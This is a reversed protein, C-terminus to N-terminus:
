CPVAGATAPHRLRVSVEGSRVRQVGAEADASGAAQAGATRICLAGSSDVGAAVGELAVTGSQLTHVPQGRLLDRQQYAAVLPAFGQHQFQLLARLLAPACAELARATTWAPDLHQLCAAAAGAGAAGQVSDPSINLGVGVVCVRQNGAMVTEILIGGLKRGQGPGGWLWLDNPWKLGIARAAGDAGGAGATARPPDLADALALGVALSLGDWSGPALPLALSCTLSAGPAAHWSRGMRGRGSTQEVAVLLRPTCPQGAATSRAADLLATNTSAVSDQVQLQLGPLLAQLASQLRPQLARLERATPSADRM